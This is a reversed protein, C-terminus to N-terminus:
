LSLTVLIFSQGLSTYPLHNVYEPCGDCIYKKYLLNVFLLFLFISSQCPTAMSTHTHMTYGAM